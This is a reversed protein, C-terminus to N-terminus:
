LLDYYLKQAIIKKWSENKIKERIQRIKEVPMGTEKAIQEDSKDTTLIRRTVEVGIDAGKEIGINIGKKMGIDIGKKKGREELERIVTSSELEEDTFFHKM